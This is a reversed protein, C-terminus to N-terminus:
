INNCYKIKNRLGSTVQYDLYETEFFLSIIYHACM